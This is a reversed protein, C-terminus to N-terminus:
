RDCSLYGKPHIFPSHSPCPKILVHGVIKQQSQMEGTDWGESDFKVSYLQGANNQALGIILDSDLGQIDYRV